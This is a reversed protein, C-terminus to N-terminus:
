MLPGHQPWTLAGCCLGIGGFVYAMALFFLLELVIQRTTRDTAKAGPVRAVAVVLFFFLCQYALTAPWGYLLLLSIPTEPVVVMTKQALWYCLPQGTLWCALPAMVFVILLFSAGPDHHQSFDTALLSCAGILLLPFYYRTLCFSIRYRM